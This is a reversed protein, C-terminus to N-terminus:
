RTPILGGARWVRWPVNWDGFGLQPTMAPGTADPYEVVDGVRMTRYLKRADAPLLNTCGSSTDAGYKISALNWPAALLYEGTDSLQQAYHIGCVHFAPGSLCRPSRRSMVVKIGGMTPTQPSGLSVPYSGVRRGDRTLTLRHTSDDVVAIQRPGTRFTLRVGDSFTYGDGAALGRAPVTVTVEAHAPWFTRPRLHGEVPYGPETSSRQFYWSVPIRVGDATVTTAANLVHADPFHRSFYAIVPLGVGYTRGPPTAMRIRVAGAAAPTDRHPLALTRDRGSHDGATLGFTVGLVVAVVAAAAAFPAILRMRRRNGQAGFQAFRPPPPIRQDDLYAQAQEDFAGRLLREVDKGTM